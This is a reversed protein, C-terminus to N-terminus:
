NIQVMAASIKAMGQGTLEAVAGKLTLQGTAEAKVQTAKADINGQGEMKVNMAKFKMDMKAEITINGAAKITVDGSSSDITFLNNQTKDILEIKEEGSKDTFRLVHGSRTKFVRVDVDSNSVPTEPLADQGNWLGGLVYPHNLDGYAFGVLVEDNVEPIVMFGRANGAGAGIVPAWWSEEQDSLQPFTLKVRGLNEPDKSNTVLATVLGNVTPRTSPAAANHVVGLLNATTGSHMGGIWFETLFGMQQDLRHRARTVLYAGSFRTGIKTVVVKCGPKINPNGHALGEGTMDSSAFQNLLTKAELDADAQEDHAFAGHLSRAGHENRTLEYGRSGFGTETPAFEASSAVGNVAQKQKRNWGGVRVEDVQGAMSLAPRFERLNAGYELPVDAFGLASPAKFLLKRGDCVVVFGNRAALLKVFDYDSLDGRFVHEWVKTTATAEASLGAASAIQSVMDSDKTNLFTKSTRGRHLLYSRDYARVVFMCYAENEAYYPEIAAIVGDFVPVVEPREESSVAANGEMSIVIEAGIKLRTDDVWKLKRDYLEITACAPMHLSADVDISHLDDMMATEVLSGNLKINAQAINQATGAPM